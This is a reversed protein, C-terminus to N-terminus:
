CNQYVFLVAVLNLKLAQLAITIINAKNIAISHQITTLFHRQTNYVSGKTEHALGENVYGCLLLM